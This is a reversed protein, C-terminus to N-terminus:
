RDTPLYIFVGNGAQKLTYSASIAEMTETGFHYERYFTKGPEVTPDMQLIVASFEQSRLKDMLPNAYSGWRRAVITYVFPDILFPHQNALVPILPNEALFVKHPDGVIKLV